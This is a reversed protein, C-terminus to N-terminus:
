TASFPLARPWFSCFLPTWNSLRGALPLHLLMSQTILSAMYGVPEVDAPTLDDLKDLLLQWAKQIPMDLLRYLPKRLMRKKRLYRIKISQFLWTCARANLRGNRIDFPSFPAGAVM